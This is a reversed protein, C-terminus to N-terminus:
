LFEFQCIRRIYPVFNLNVIRDWSADPCCHRVKDSDFEHRRAYVKKLGGYFSDPTDQILVGNCRNVVKKNEATATAIVPMGAFIYEFTKTVPQCDYIDCIPVYSIGVNCRDFTDQLRTKHVYGPLSIVDDLGRLHVMRRLRELQGNHGGVITYTLAIRAGYDQLFREFGLVTDEIRRDNLAGVYLLDLRDFRKAEVRMREAGLPLVHTKDFPLHLRDALSQSIVSISEFLRSEWRTLWDGWRRVLPNQNVSGTRIDLVMRARPALCRLLSCGPFYVIFIVGQCKSIERAFAAVLMLYRRLRRGKYAVYQVKVADLRLKPRGLDFGVYAIRL